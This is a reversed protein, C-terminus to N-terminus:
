ADRKSRSPSSARADASPTLLGEIFWFTEHYILAVDIVPVLLIRWNMLTCRTTFMRRSYVLSFIFFIICGEVFLHPVLPLVALAPKILLPVKGTLPRLGEFVLIKGYTRALMKRTKFLAGLRYGPGLDHLHVVRASSGVIKGVKKLRANLDSDEGGYGCTATFRKVNHGGVKLYAEKRICDFKGCMCPKEILAMRAFLYKQWFPFREWVEEPMLLVSYAAVVQPDSLLPEVLREIEQPSPLMSDSHVFVLLSATVIEAGLNYSSTLGGNVSQRILRVAVPSSKAFDEVLGASADTSVNDVVVIEAIPYTQSILGKLCAVITTASNRMGVVVGVPLYQSTGM